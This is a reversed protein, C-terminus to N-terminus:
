SLTVEEIEYCRGFRMKWVILKRQGGEIIHTRYTLPFLQKVYWLM